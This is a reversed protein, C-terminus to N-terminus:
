WSDVPACSTCGPTWFFRQQGAPENLALCVERDPIDCDCQHLTIDYCGEVMSHSANGGTSFHQTALRTSLKKSDVASVAAMTKPADGVRQIAFRVNPDADCVGDLTAEVLLADGFMDTLCVFGFCELSVICGM